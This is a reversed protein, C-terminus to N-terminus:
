VASVSFHASTRHGPFGLSDAASLMAEPFSPSMLRTLVLSQAREMLYSGTFSKLLTRTLRRSARSQLQSFSLKDKTRPHDKCIFSCVTVGTGNVTPFSLNSVCTYYRNLILAASPVPFMGSTSPLITFKYTTYQWMSPLSWYPINLPNKEEKHRMLCFLINLSLM